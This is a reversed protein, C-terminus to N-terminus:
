SYRLLMESMTRADEIPIQGPASSRKGVVFSMDSVYLFGAVRTVSGLAGMSLTVLPLDPYLKRAIATVQLLRLVDDPTRPTVAIKAINAGRLHMMKIKSLLQDNSTTSEFDHFALTVPIGHDKAIAMLSDLFPPENALELDVIDIMKSRLVAEILICREQAPIEHAGGESKARLTFVIAEGAAIKRLLAAAEVISTVTPKSLFDARWEILEPKLDTAVKAETALEALDRPVIPICFLPKEGGYELGRIRIPSQVKPKM